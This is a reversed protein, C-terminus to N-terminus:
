RIRGEVTALHIESEVSVMDANSVEGRRARQYFDAIEARTFFRKTQPPTVVKNTDPVVQAALAKNTTTTSVQQQSKWTGFFRAVRDADRSNEADSLLDQRRKGTLADYEDLWKLFSPDDNIAVWDPMMQSLRDYFVVEANKATDTHVDDLRRKLQEIESDKASVQEQASRKIVDLLDDGYKERDEASILPTSPTAAKSKFSEFDQTLGELKQRLERNEAALRPVEARYKGEMVKYKHEWPDEKVQQDPLESNPPVVADDVPQDQLGEPLNPPDSPALAPDPQPDAQPEENKQEYLQKHLAEAREEAERVKRPIALINEM